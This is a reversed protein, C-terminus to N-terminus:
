LKKFLLSCSFVMVIYFLVNMNLSPILQMASHKSESVIFDRKNKSITVQMIHEFPVSGMESGAESEYYGFKKSTM